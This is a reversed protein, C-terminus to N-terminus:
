RDRLRFNAGDETVYTEDFQKSEVTRGAPVRVRPKVRKTGADPAPRGELVDVRRRLAALADCVPLMLDSLDGLTAKSARQSESLSAM